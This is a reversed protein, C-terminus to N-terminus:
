DINKGISLKIRWYCHQLDYYNGSIRPLIEDDDYRQVIVAGLDVANMIVRNFANPPFVDPVAHAANGFVVASM